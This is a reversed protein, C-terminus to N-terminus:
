KCLVNLKNLKRHLDLLNRTAKRIDVAVVNDMAIHVWHTRM